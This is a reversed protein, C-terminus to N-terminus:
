SAPLALLLNIGSRVQEAVIGALSRQEVQVENRGYQALRRAAEARPL